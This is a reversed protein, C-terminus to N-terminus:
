ESSFNTLIEVSNIEYGYTFYGLSDTLKPDLIHFFETLNIDSIDSMETIKLRIIVKVVVAVIKM